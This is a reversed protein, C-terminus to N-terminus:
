ARGGRQQDRRYARRREPPTAANRKQAELRKIERVVAGLSQKAWGGRDRAELVQPDTWRSM